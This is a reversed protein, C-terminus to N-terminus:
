KFKKALEKLDGRLRPGKEARLVAQIAQEEIYMRLARRVADSKNSAIGDRVLDEIAKLTDSDLPVSLTSM